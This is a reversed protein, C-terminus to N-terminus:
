LQQLYTDWQTWNNTHYTPILSKLFLYPMSLLCLLGVTFFAAVTRKTRLCQLKHLCWEM